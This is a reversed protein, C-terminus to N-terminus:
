GGPELGRLAGCLGALLHHRRLQEDRKAVPVTRDLSRFAEALYRLLIGESRAINLKQIYGKFDNASELMDRLVSKPASSITTQGLYRRRLLHDFATDLLDELPKPYTVDQLREKREEFSSAM